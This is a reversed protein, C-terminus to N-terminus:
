KALNTFLEKLFGGAASSSGSVAAIVILGILMARRDSKTQDALAKELDDVRDQLGGKAYLTQDHRDVKIDLSTENSM